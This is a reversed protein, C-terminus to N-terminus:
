KCNEFVTMADGNGRWVDDDCYTELMREADFALLGSARHFLLRLTWKMQLNEGAVASVARAVYDM